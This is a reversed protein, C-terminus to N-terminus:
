PWPLPVGGIVGDILRVRRVSRLYERIDREVVDVNELRGCIVVLVFLGKRLSLFNGAFDGESDDTRILDHSGRIAALNTASDVWPTHDLDVILIM